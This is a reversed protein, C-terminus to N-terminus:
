GQIELDKPQEPAPQIALANRKGWIAVYLVFTIAAAILAGPIGFFCFGFIAGFLVTSFTKAPMNIM